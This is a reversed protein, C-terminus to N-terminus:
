GAISLARVVIWVLAATGLVRRFWNVGLLMEGLAWVTLGVVFVARGADHPTGRTLAAFALGVFALLLPPNPFQVMPFRRPWGVEGRRWMEAIM